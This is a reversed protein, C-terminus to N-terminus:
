DAPSPPSTTLKLEGEEEPEARSQGNAEWARECLCSSDSVEDSSQRRSSLSDRCSRSRFTSCAPRGLVDSVFGWAVRERGQRKVRGCHAISVALTGLLVACCVECVLLGGHCMLSRSSLPSSWSKDQDTLYSERSFVDISPIQSRSQRHGVVGASLMRPKGRERRRTLVRAPAQQCSLCTSLPIHRM